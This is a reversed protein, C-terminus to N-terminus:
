WLIYDTSFYCYIGKFRIVNNEYEHFTFVNNNIGWYWTSTWKKKQSRYCKAKTLCGDDDDDLAHVSILNLIM